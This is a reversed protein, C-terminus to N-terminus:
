PLPWRPDRLKICRSVGSSIMRDELAAPWRPGYSAVYTLDLMDLGAPKIEDFM